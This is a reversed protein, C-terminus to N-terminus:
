HSSRAKEKLVIREAAPPIKLVFAEDPLEPNIRWSKFQMDLRYGDLPRELRISLPLRVGEFDALDGYSVIGDVQGSDTFTEEKVVAMQSREVWIRRVPKAERDGAERLLTMVYYKAAADQEETRMIREGPEKPQIGPPLIAELIQSPRAAFGAADSQGELDFERVSNRGLYAKNDRPSWIEFQDGASSLELITTRTLPNQINMLLRDPRRLLIYGTASRYEQLKGSDEHGVTLSVKVSSSLSRIKRDAVTVMDLVEALSATRAAALKPSVPV